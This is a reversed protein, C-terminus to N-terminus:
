KGGSGAYAVVAFNDDASQIPVKVHKCRFLRSADVWLHGLDLRAVGSHAVRSPIRPVGLPHYFIGCLRRRADPAM